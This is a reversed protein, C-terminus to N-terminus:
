HKPPTSRLRLEMAMQTSLSLPFYFLSFLFSGPFLFAPFYPHGKRFVITDENKVFQILPAVQISKLLTNDFFAMRM